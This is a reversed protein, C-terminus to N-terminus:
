AVLEPVTESAVRAAGILLRKAEPSSRRYYSLLQTEDPATEGLLEATDLGAALGFTFMPPVDCAAALQVLTKLDATGVDILTTAVHAGMGMAKALQNKNPYRRGPGVQSQVWESLQSPNSSNRM